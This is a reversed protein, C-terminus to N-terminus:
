CRPAHELKEVEMEEAFLLQKAGIQEIEVATEREDIRPRCRSERREFGPEGLEADRDGLEAM